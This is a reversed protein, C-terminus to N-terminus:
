EDVEELTYNCFMFIDGKSLAKEIKDQDSSYVLITKLWDQASFRERNSDKFKYLVSADGYIYIDDFFEMLIRLVNTYDVEGMDKHIPLIVAECQKSLASILMVFNKIQLEKYSAHKSDWLKFNNGKLINAKWIDSILLALTKQEM